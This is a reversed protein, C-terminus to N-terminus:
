DPDNDSSDLDLEFDDSDLKLVADIFKLWKIRNWLM